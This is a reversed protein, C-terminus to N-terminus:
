LSLQCLVGHGKSTRASLNTLGSADQSTKHAVFGIQTYQPNPIPAGKHWQIEPALNGDSLSAKRTKPDYTMGLWVWAATLSNPLKKKIYDLIKDFDEVSKVDALKGGSGKCIEQGLSISVDKQEHVVAWFCLNGFKLDCPAPKTKGHKMRENLAKLAYNFQTFMRQLRLNMEHRTVMNSRLDEVATLLKSYEAEEDVESDKNPLLPASIEECMMHKRKNSAVTTTVILIWFLITRLEM